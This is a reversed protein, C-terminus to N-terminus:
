RNGDPAQATPKWLSTGLGHSIDTFRVTRTMPKQPITTFVTMCGGGAHPDKEPDVVYIQISVSAM